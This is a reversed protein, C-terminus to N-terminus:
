AKVELDSVFKQGTGSYGGTIRGQLSTGPKWVFLAKETVIEFNETAEFGSEDVFIRVICEQTRGVLSIVNETRLVEGDVTEGILQECRTLWQEFAEECKGAECVVQIALEYIKGLNRQAIAACARNWPHEEFYREGNM